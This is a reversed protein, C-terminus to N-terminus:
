AEINIDIPGVCSGAESQKRTEAPVSASINNSLFVEGHRHGRQNGQSMLSRMRASVNADKSNFM